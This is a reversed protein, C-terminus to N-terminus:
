APRPPSSRSTSWTTASLFHPNLVQFVLGILVLVVAVPLVGLDGTRLRQWTSAALGSRSWASM